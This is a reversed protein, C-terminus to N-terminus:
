SVAFSPEMCRNKAVVSATTNSPVVALACTRELGVGRARVGTPGDVAPDIVDGVLGAMIAGLGIGPAPAVPRLAKPKPLM